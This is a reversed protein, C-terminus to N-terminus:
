VLVGKETLTSSLYDQLPKIHELPRNFESKFDEILQIEDIFQGKNYRRIVPHLFVSEDAKDVAFRNIRKLSDDFPDKDSKGYELTVVLYDDDQEMTQHIFDVPLADYYRSENKNVDLVVLDGFFGFQQWLASSVNMREIIIDTINKANLEVKHSAFHLGQNKHMLIKVLAESNYRFGHIFGSTSKKYDLGHTPSGVIYLGKVNVSEWECTVEPFRDNVIMNPLASENFISEDFKFGCCSIVRDYSLADTEVGDVFSYDIHVEFQGNELKEIRDIQGNILGNQSKLQYTDLFNNNIARLHGVYHTRWAFKIPSPSIMHILATTEILNDATEFASNGKGIILVSQNTFDDPDVSVDFYNEVIDIGKVDPTYPMSMGTGVILNKCTYTDGSAAKLVFLGDDNKDISLISCNYNVKLKFHETFAQVYEVFSDADPFYKTTFEKMLMSSDDSILSNWDWRMNLDDNDYGTYVKNISILKRHRPFEQFFSAPRENRELIVYDMNNKELFYGTQVGAPGAGLVLYDHYKNNM